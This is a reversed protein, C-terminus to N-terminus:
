LETRAIEEGDPGLGVVARYMSPGDEPAFARFGSQGLIEVLEATAFEDAIVSGDNAIMDIEVIPGGGHGVIGTVHDQDGATIIRVDIPGEVPGCDEGTAEGSRVQLCVGDAISRAYVTFDRQGSSHSVVQEWDDGTATEGPTTPTGGATGTPQPSAPTTTAAPETPTPGAPSSTRPTSTGDPTTTADDPGSAPDGTCGAAALVGALLITLTARQLRQM